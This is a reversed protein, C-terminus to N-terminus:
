ALVAWVHMPTLTVYVRGPRPHTVLDSRTAGGVRRDAEAEGKLRYSRKSM